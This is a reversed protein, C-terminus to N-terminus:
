SFGGLRIGAGAVVFAVALVTIAGIHYALPALDDDALNPILRLRAHLALALTGALLLLKLSILTAIPTSLSFLSAFGPLYIWGMALGTVALVALATLGLPEFVEEYARIVAASGQHLARPLVGLALVLHGGTWITAALVHLTVLLPFSSL